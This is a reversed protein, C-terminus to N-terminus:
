HVKSGDKFIESSLNKFEGSIGGTIVLLMTNHRPVQLEGDSIVFLINRDQKRTKINIYGKRLSPLSRPSTTMECPPTTGNILGSTLEKTEV